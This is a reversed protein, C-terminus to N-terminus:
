YHYQLTLTQVNSGGKSYGFQEASGFVASRHHIAYGFWMRDLTDGGFIDGLNLDLSFDLYNMLRNPEYGKERLEYNEVFPIDSVWSWGDGVGVRLRVPLPISYYIKLGLIFEWISQKMVPWHYGVGGTFFVQIPTGLLRDSLPHGYFLSTMRNDDPDDVGKLSLIDALSSTSVRGQALRIYPRTKQVPPTTLTPNERLGIGLYATATADRKVFTVDRVPSDFLTAELRGYLMFNSVLSYNITAGANFEVGAGVTERNLGYFHSNFASTKFQAQLFASLTLKRRQRQIGARLFVAQRGHLDSLVDLDFHWPGASLYRLQGGVLGVSNWQPYQPEQPIDYFRLRALASIKWAGPRLFTVGGELGRFFFYEDNDYFVLPIFSSVTQEEADFPVVAGRMVGIGAWYPDKGRTLATDSVAPSPDQDAGQAQGIGTLLVTLILGFVLHRM